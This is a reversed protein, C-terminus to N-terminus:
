KREEWIKNKIKKIKILRNFLVSLNNLRNNIENVNYKKNNYNFNHSYNIYFLVESEKFELLKIIINNDQTLIYKDILELIM